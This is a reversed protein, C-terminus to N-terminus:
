NYFDRMFHNQTQERPRPPPEPKPEPRQRAPESSEAQNRAVRSESKGSPTRRKNGGGCGPRSASDGIYPVNSRGCADALVVGDPPAEPLPENEMALMLEGWVRLAGTGGALGMPKYDDRGVWVAAVKDGTFGAFWSDRMDDTTGTKGAMTMGDPLKAGLWKATGQTVVRQMAWTTLYAAKPDVVAEVALPYRNLPLGHADVVERIARLPARYGGAAITQYMQAVELPSMSVSGLLLSPVKRIQRQVGMAYLTDAVKSVGVSLGLNVTALNLSRVLASYLPVAGYVRHNYNKPEWRRAGDPLSVPKDQISTTLTYRDSESLATLYVAPKVLSGISRVADLARNFGAYGPERGGAVALVEGQTVSTVVAATELTGPKMRRKKELAALRKPLAEEVTAQVQPDLTTFINLGESRLDEDRYDRQLQRRVLTIFHPYAGAPRGGGNQIGLPQEKAQAAAEPEIVGDRVMLDLVLNRRREAAEPHRRPDLSSPAQVMGVLLATKAVDLESLPLDFYFESALGFGHIARSGDQGLYIENAYAELIEDKSYRRELLLAMYAEKIKREFTRDASLYFNKVLQQTLTSAGEVVAGAQLNSVVARLIGKPDVGMHRYFNRDEVAMLTRVLLDPIEKRRVLVRDENHTPYISAILMPDLRVLAPDPREEELAELSAVKGDEFGVKLFRDPERGDWFRFARTRVQFSDGDRHFYGSAAPSAKEHYSLRDLEAQLDDAKLHKGVYLELPRAYVRAPLAWRQGEFKDRVVRDLHAGYLAVLGGFVLTLVLTSRFLFRGLRFRKPM